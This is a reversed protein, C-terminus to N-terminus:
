APLSPYLESHMQQAVPRVCRPVAAHPPGSPKIRPRGTRRRAPTTPSSRASPPAGPRRTWGPASSTFASCCPSCGVWCGCPTRATSVRTSMWRRSRRRAMTGPLTSITRCSDNAILMRAALEDRRRGPKGPEVAGAEAPVAGPVPAAACGQGDVVGASMGGCTASHRGADRATCPDGDDRDGEVFLVRARWFDREFKKPPM